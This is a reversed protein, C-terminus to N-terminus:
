EAESALAGALDLATRGAEVGTVVAARAETTRDGSSGLARALLRGAEVYLEPDTQPDVTALVWELRARAQAGRGLALDIRALGSQAYRRARPGRALRDLRNYYPKADVCRGLECMLWGVLNVTEAVTNEDVDDPQEDNWALAAALAANTDGREIEIAALLPLTNRDPHGIPLGNREIARARTADRWADELAGRRLSMEASMVLAPVIRPSDPGYVLSQASLTEEFHAASTTFDGRARANLGLDFALAAVEPHDDGHLRRLIRSADRYHADSRTLDGLEATVTGLQHLLQAAGATEDDAAALAASLVAAAGVLDGGGRMAGARALADKTRLQQTATSRLMAAHGRAAAIRANEPDHLDGAALLARAFWVEAELQDLGRSRALLGASDLSRAAEEDRGLEDLAQGRLLEAEVLGADDGLERSRAAAITAHDLADGFHSFSMAANADDLARALSEDADTAVDLEACRRTPDLRALIEPAGLRDAADARALRDLAGVMRARGSALCEFGARREEPDTVECIEARLQDIRADYDDLLTEVGQLASRAAATGDSEFNSRLVRRSERAAQASADVSPDGCPATSAQLMRELLIALPLVMAFLHLKRAPAGRVAELLASLAPFRRAPDPDLGRTLAARIHRPLQGSAIDLRPVTSPATALALIQEASYPRRGFYAEFLCVCFSFQDSRADVLGRAAQEPSAYGPTGAVSLTSREASGTRRGDTTPTPIPTRGVSADGRRGRDLGAIGFDSVCVRGNDGVLMNSPKVDRHVVGAAHAAALGEGVACYADRIEQWTRNALQWTLMPQGEILEMAIWTGFVSDGQDLVTVINPHSLSALIRAERRLLARADDGLHALRSVKVAVDRALLQHRALYVNGHAGAGLKRLIEFPGVRPRPPDMACRTRLFEVLTLADDLAVSAPQDVGAFPDSDRVEDSAVNTSIRPHSHFEVAM